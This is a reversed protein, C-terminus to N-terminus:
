TLFEHHSKNLNQKYDIIEGKFLTAARINSNRYVVLELEM